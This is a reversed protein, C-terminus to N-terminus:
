LTKEETSYSIYKRIFFLKGPRIDLHVLKRQHLAMLASSVDRLMTLILSEELHGSFKKKANIIKLLDSECYEM